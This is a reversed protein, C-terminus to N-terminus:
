SCGGKDMGKQKERESEKTEQLFTMQMYCFVLMFKFDTLLVGGLLPKGTKM